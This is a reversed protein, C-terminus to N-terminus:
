ILDLYVFILFYVIYLLSSTGSSNTPELAGLRTLLAEPQPLHAAQGVVHQGAVAALLQASGRLSLGAVRLGACTV